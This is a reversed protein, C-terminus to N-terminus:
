KQSEWVVEGGAYVVRYIDNYDEFLDISDVAIYEQILSAVAEAQGIGIEMLLSGGPNMKEAAQALFRHIVALGDPGGALALRPEFRISPEGLDSDKVYPLNAVILDVPQPLAALLDGQIFRLRGAAIQHLRSNEGALELAGGSVDLAFITDVSTHKALTIAIAGSGTGVDAISKVGSRRIVELTKEVLLETEPRPILVRPDVKFDLSFFEKHGTLYAVPEGAIHRKLLTKFEKLQAETFERESEQYLEVRSLKLVSRLLVEATLPADQISNKELLKSAIFLAQKLTV